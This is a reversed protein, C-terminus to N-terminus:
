CFKHLHDAYNVLYLVFEFTLAIDAEVIKVDKGATDMRCLWLGSLAFIAATEFMMGQVIASSNLTM